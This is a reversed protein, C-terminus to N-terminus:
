ENKFEEMDKKFQADLIAEYAVDISNSKIDGYSKSTEVKIESSEKDRYLNHFLILDSEDSDLLLEFWKMFVYSHTVLILQQGERALKVLIKAMDYMMKPNLNTEPEDWLLPGGRGPSICASEILRSLVGFKRYGEAMLKASRVRGNEHFSMSLDEAIKFTGGLTEEINAIIENSVQTLHEGKAKPLMMNGVVNQYTLDTRLEYKNMWSIFDPLFFMMEKSPIFMPLLKVSGEDKSVKLDQSDSEIEAQISDSNLFDMELKAKNQSKDHILDPLSCLPDFNHLLLFTYYGQDDRYGGEHFMISGLSFIAKLLHTKGTSNEGSVINIGPSFEMELDSFATFNNLRLCKVM